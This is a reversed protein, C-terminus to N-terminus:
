LWLYRTKSNSAYLARHSHHHPSPPIPPTLRDVKQHASHSWLTRGGHTLECFWTATIFFFCSLLCLSFVSQRESSFRVLRVKLIKKKKTCGETVAVPPDVEGGFFLSSFASHNSRSRAKFVEFHCFFVFFLFFSGEDLRLLVSCSCDWLSHLVSCSRKYGSDRIPVFYVETDCGRFLVFRFVVMRM